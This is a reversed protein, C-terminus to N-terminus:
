TTDCEHVACTSAQMINRPPRSLADAVVNTKGPRHHLTFDFSSFFDLWRTLKATLVPTKLFWQCTANDTFVDFHSVYVYHRWKALALKIAYLEKEHSPWNCETESLKKSLFALPRDEENANLQSLLAGCCYGSADTTDKDKLDRETMVTDKFSFKDVKITEMVERTNTIPSWVNDYAAIRVSKNRIVNTGLGVRCLSHTVGSDLLVKVDKGNMVGSKLM